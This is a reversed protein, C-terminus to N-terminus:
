NKSRSCGVVFFFFPYRRTLIFVWRAKSFLKLAVFRKIYSGQCHSFKCKVSRLLLLRYGFVVGKSNIIQQQHDVRKGNGPKNRRTSFRFKHATFRVCVCMPFFFFFFFLWTAFHIMELVSDSFPGGNKKTLTTSFLVYLNNKSVQKEHTWGVTPPPEPAFQVLCTLNITSGQDIYLEPGGLIETTPESLFFM